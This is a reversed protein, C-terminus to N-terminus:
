KLSKVCNVWIRDEESYVRYNLANRKPQIIGEREYYRLTEIPIETLESFEKMQYCM